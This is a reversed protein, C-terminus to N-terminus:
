QKVVFTYGKADEELDVNCAKLIRNKIEPYLNLLNKIEFTTGYGHIKDKKRTEGENKVVGVDFWDKPVKFIGLYSVMHM